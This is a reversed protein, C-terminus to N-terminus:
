VPSRKDKLARIDDDHRSLLSSNLATERDLAYLKDKQLDSDRLHKEFAQQLSTFVTAVSSVKTMIKNLYLVTPAIILAMMGIFIENSVIFEVM